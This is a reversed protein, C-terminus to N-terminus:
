AELVLDSKPISVCTLCSGAEPQAGPEEVYDVDGSRMATICTGCNGARCGCDMAIGNAEAFELLNDQAGDWVLKKGSKAFEVNITKGTPADVKPKAAKKVSAPGFAEFHVHASPVGWADLDRVLSEMMPPPGCIYFEYNNSPLVRKFLDVSVREGHTYDRGEQEGEVPDSYCIHMHVNENERDIRSLHEKMVQEDGNRVGYFFHTERKSGSLVITNLMSLVPTLGVGGGILVVPTHKATDMFFKGSPAKVDLIDGEKLQDHFFNSSRGPPLEPKDRPPPVRKISVRYYDRQIPSDSLSYCRVLPKEEGPMRLQFTLYQGPEFPPHEKGDHPKLYFSCIHGGEDVKRDIRYKRTGNWTLRARDQEAKAHASSARVRNRLQSLEANLFASEAAGRRLSGMTFSVMQLVVAGLIALGIFRYGDAGFAEPEGFIVMAIGVLIVITFTLRGIWPM